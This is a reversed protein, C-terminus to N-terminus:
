GGSEGNEDPKTVIRVSDLNQPDFHIQADAPAGIRAKIALALMELRQGAAAIKEQLLAQHLGINEVQLREVDELKVEQVNNEEVEEENKRADLLREVEQETSM